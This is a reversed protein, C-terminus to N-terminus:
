LYVFESNKRLELLNKANVYSCATTLVENIDSITDPGDLLRKTMVFDAGAVFSKVVDSPNTIGDDSILYGGCDHAAKSCEMVASLQPYGVGTKLMSGTGCKVINVGCDIILEEVLDPTCVNGAVLVIDPYLSKLKCCVDQLDQTYGNAVDVCLFKVSISYERLWDIIISVNTFDLGCSLMYRNTYGLERPLSDMQVWEDIMHSPFCSMYGRLRLFNFTDMNTVTDSSIIPIGRWPVNRFKIRRILSVEKRSKIYSKKPVILVDHFDLARRM